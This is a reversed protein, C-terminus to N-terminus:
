LGEVVTRLEEALAENVNQRPRKPCAEDLPYYHPGDSGPLSIGGREVSVELRQDMLGPYPAVEGMEQSVYRVAVGEIRGPAKLSEPM